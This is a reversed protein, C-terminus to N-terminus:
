RSPHFRQHGTAEVADFLEGWGDTGCCGRTLGLGSALDYTSCACALLIDTLMFSMKVSPDHVAATAQDRSVQYPKFYKAAEGCAAVLTAHSILASPGTDAASYRFTPMLVNASAVVDPMERFIASQVIAWLEHIVDHQRLLVLQLSIM